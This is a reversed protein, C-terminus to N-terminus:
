AAPWRRILYDNAAAELGAAATEREERQRFRWRLGRCRPPGAQSLRARNLFFPVTGAPGAATEVEFELSLRLAGLDTNAMAARNTRAGNLPFGPRPGQWREAIGFAATLEQRAYAGTRLHAAGRVAVRRTLSSPLNTRAKNLVFEERPCVATGRRLVQGVGAEADQGAEELSDLRQLFFVRVGAPHHAALADRVGPVINDSAIRYVGQNHVTGAFRLSNLRARRNTRLMGRFTEELHGRWGLDELSRLVAPVTGKRRHFPIAERLLRRQMTTDTDPPVARRLMAALVPLFAPDCVELDFNSPLADLREKFEDLTAAPIGLFAELDGTSDQERWLPPLLGPLRAAFCPRDVRVGCAADRREMRDIRQRAAARVTRRAGVSLVAKAQRFTRRNLHSAQAADHTSLRDARLLVPTESRLLAERVLVTRGGTGAHTGVSVRTGAALDWQGPVSVGTSADRERRHVIRLRVSGAAEASRQACLLVQAQCAGRRGAALVVPLPVTRVRAIQVPAAPACRREAAVSVGAASAYGADARLSVSTASPISVRRPAEPANFLGRNFLGTSM